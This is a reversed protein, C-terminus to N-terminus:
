CYKKGVLFKKTGQKKILRLNKLHADNHVPKLFNLKGCTEFQFCEWCGNNGKKQCCIRMKCFPSGGGNRCARKCRFRVLTGLVDYCQQYNKLTKFFSIKSLMEAQKEFKTQRLEKLLDRALDALKGQYMFCDGCYLGCYAILNKDDKM